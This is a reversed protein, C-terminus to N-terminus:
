TSQWQLRQNGRRICGRDVRLNQHHHPGRREAEEAQVGDRRIGNRRPRTSRLSPLKGLAYCSVNYPHCISFSLTRSTHRGPFLYALASSRPSSPIRPQPGCSPAAIATTTTSSSASAGACSRPRPSRGAGSLRNSSSESGASSRASGPPTPLRTTSTTAHAGRWSRGSRPTSTPSTTM